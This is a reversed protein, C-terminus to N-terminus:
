LDDYKTTCTFLNSKVTQLPPSNVLAPLEAQITTNGPVFVSKTTGNAQTSHLQTLFTGTGATKFFRVPQNPYIYTTNGSWYPRATLLCGNMSVINPSQYLALKDARQVAIAALDVGAVALALVLGLVGCNRVSKLLGANREQKVFTM